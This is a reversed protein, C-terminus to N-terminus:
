DEKKKVILKVGEISLIEVKSGEKIKEKSKASWYKGDVKVEGLKFEEIDKTVLGTKGVLDLNIKQVKPKIYKNLVPRTFILSLISVVFFVIGQIVISDTILSTIWAALAGFAFWITVLGTTVVEIILLIIFLGIWSM